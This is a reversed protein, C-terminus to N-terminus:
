KLRKNIKESCERLALLLKRKDMAMYRYEPLYISLSAVVQDNKYIPVALGMVHRNPITQLALEESQMLKLSEYLQTETQIEPWSSEPPLGYKAVFRQLKDAPLMALLLRGSASDYVSKVKESSGLVM